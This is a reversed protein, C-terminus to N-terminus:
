HGVATTSIVPTRKSTAASFPSTKMTGSTATRTPITPPITCLTFNVLNTELAQITDDMAMVQRSFDGSRYAAKNNLNMPIGAEGILMPAGGFDQEATVLLRRIRETFNRRVRRRGLVFSVKRQHTDVGLWPIYRQLYLTLGDYFHPSYVFGREDSFTPAFRGFTTEAPPPSVFILANPQVSRIARKYREVFATFYDRGFDVERGDVTGFYGPHLLHPKGQKDVDWVGQAKWIPDHGERWISVGAENLWATRAKGLRIAALRQVAVEQPFGAALLM